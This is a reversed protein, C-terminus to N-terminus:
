GANADEEGAGDAKATGVQGYGEAIDSKAQTYIEILETRKREAEESGEEMAVYGPVADLYAIMDAAGSALKAQAGAYEQPASLDILRQYLAKGESVYQDVQASDSFDVDLSASDNAEIAAMIEDLSSKYDEGTLGATDTPTDTEEAGGGSDCAAFLLLASFLLLAATINVWKKM